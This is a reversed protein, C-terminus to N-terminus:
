HRSSLVVTTTTSSYAQLIFYCCLPWSIRIPISIWWIGSKASTSYPCQDWWVGTKTCSGTYRTFSTLSHCHHAPGQLGGTLQLIWRSIRVLTSCSSSAMVNLDLRIFVSSNTCEFYDISYIPLHRAVLSKPAQLVVPESSCSPAHHTIPVHFSYENLKSAVPFKRSLDFNRIKSWRRM